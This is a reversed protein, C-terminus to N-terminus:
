TQDRAKSLPNLIRHQRSSHHLDCVHSLDWIATARAYAPLYLEWQVGLRPVEVVVHQPHPGLFVGGGGFFFIFM